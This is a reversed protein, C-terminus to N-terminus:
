ARKRTFGKMGELTGQRGILDLFRTKEQDLRRRVDGRRHDDWVNQRTAQHTQAFGKGLEEVWAEVIGALGQLPGSKAALGLEVAEAAGIRSNRYQIALAKATGIRDPLLATWGGDPGFGVESYYPQIFATESLAVLDAALMLGTSGGTVPGNVAALVPAPFALLDLIAEHLGGVLLDAYALLEKQSRAHDLFGAIDGGTSFSNGRGSLVLAVPERAAAEKIANRLDSILAPVLANHREARSLWLWIAGNRLETEVLSM